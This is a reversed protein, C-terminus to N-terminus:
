SKLVSLFLDTFSNVIGLFEWLQHVTTPKPFERMVQVQDEPPSVGHQNVHHRLFQLEAMGLVNLPISQSVM